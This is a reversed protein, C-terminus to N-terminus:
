CLTAVIRKLQDTPVEPFDKQLDLWLQNARRYGGDRMMRFAHMTVELEMPERDANM